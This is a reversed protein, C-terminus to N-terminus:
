SAKKLHFPKGFIHKNLWFSTLIFVCEIFTDNLKAVLLIILVNFINWLLNIILYLIIEFKEKNSSNLFKIVLQKLSNKLSNLKQLYSGVVMQFNGCLKVDGEFYIKYALILMLIYDFNLIFNICNSDILIYMYKYRTICSILQFLINILCMAFTRKITNIKNNKNYVLCLIILYLIDSFLNLKYPILLNKIFTHVIITFPITLILYKISKSKTIISVMIYQSILITSLNFIYNIIRNDLINDIYIVFPNSIDLGIYDLGILKFIFMLCLLFLYTDVTQKILKNTNNKM